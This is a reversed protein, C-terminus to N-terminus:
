IYYKLLNDKSNILNNLSDTTTISNKKITKDNNDSTTKPKLNNSKTERDIINKICKCYKKLYTRKNYIISNSKNSDTTEEEIKINNAKKYFSLQIKNSSEQSITMNSRIEKLM